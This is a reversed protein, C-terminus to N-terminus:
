RRGRPMSSPWTGARGGSAWVSACLDRPGDPPITGSCILAQVRPARARIRSLLETYAQEPVPPSEVLETQAGASEDIVTVCERTRADVAVFDTEIGLEAMVRPVFPNVESPELGASLSQFRDGAYHRLLAEAMQSRASNRTCLFLVNPKSM